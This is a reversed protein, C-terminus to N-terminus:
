PAGTLSDDSIPQYHAALHDASVLWEEGAPGRLVWEADGALQDGELSHIVEGPVAHRGSVEGVREWRDDSVHRYTDSFIEAAVSWVQDDDSVRWDGADARM